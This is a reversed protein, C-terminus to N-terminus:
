WCGSGLLEENIKMLLANVEIAERGLPAVDAVVRGIGRLFGLFLTLRQLPEDTSALYVQLLSANLDGHRQVREENIRINVAELDVASFGIEILHAELDGM